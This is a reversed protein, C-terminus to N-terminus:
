NAKYGKIKANIKFCEIPAIGYLRYLKPWYKENIGYRSWNQLTRSQVGLKYAMETVGGEAYSFIDQVSQISKKSM